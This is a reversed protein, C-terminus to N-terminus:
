QERLLYERHYKLAKSLLEGSFILEYTAIYEPSSRIEKLVENIQAIMKEGM